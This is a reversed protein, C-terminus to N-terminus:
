CRARWRAPSSARCTLPRPQAGAAPIVIFAAALLLLGLPVNVLFIWHWGWHATIFGGLAPGIIPAALGPWTITAIARVLQAKPTGRLVVLRGVPVMLAGGMGQLIRALTFATLSGSLACLVSALTFVAIAAAFVRRPGYRDALWGSAPIFAALSVLYASLGISLHEPRTGFSHAMQPLSTTIATADLNEMFFAAAVLWPVARARREAIRDSM